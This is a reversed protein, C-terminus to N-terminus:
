PHGRGAAATDRRAEVPVHNEFEIRVVQFALISKASFHPPFNLFAWSTDHPAGNEKVVIRVAPNRPDRSRTVVKRKDIIFDPVFEIIKGTYESDGIRFEQKLKADVKEAFDQVVRHRIVLTVHKVRLPQGDTTPRAAGSTDTVPPAPKLDAAAPAAAKAPTSKVSASKAATSKSGHPSSAHPSTAGPAPGWGAPMPRPPAKTSDPPAASALLLVVMLSGLVRVLKM